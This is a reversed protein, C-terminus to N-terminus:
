ATATYKLGTGNDSIYETLKMHRILCVFLQMYGSDVCVYLQIYLCLEGWSHKYTGRWPFTHPFPPISGAMKFRHLLPFSKDSECRMPKGGLSPGETCMSYSASHPASGTLVSYLNFSGESFTQFLVAFDPGDM